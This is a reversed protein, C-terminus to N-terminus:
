KNVGQATTEHINCQNVSRIEVTSGDDLIVLFCPFRDGCISYDHKKIEKVRRMGARYMATGQDTIVDIQKIM